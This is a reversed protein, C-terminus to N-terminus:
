RGPRCLGSPFDHGSRDMRGVELVGGLRGRAEVSDRGQGKAGLSWPFNAAPMQTGGQEGTGTWMGMKNWPYPCVPKGDNYVM